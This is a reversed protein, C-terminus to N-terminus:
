KIELLAPCGAYPNDYGWEATKIEEDAIQFLVYGETKGGPLLEVDKLDYPGYYIYPDYVVQNIMVKFGYHKISYKPCNKNEINLYLLFFAKGQPAKYVYGGESTYQYVYQSKAENWIITVPPEVPTQKQTQTQSEAVCGITLALIGIILIAFIKKM